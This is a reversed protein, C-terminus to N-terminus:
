PSTGHFRFVANRKRAGVDLVDGGGCGTGAVAPDITSGDTDLVDDVDGVTVVDPVEESQLTRDLVINQVGEVVAWFIELVKVASDGDHGVVEHDVVILDGDDVGADDIAGLGLTDDHSRQLGGNLVELIDVDLHFDCDGLVLVEDSLHRDGAVILALDLGVADQVPAADKIVEFLGHLFGTNLEVDALAVVLIEVVDNLEDLDEDDHGGLLEQVNDADLVLGEGIRALRLAELEVLLDCVPCVGIVLELADVLAPQRDGRVGQPEIVGPLFMLAEIAGPDLVDITAVVAVDLVDGIPDDEWDKRTQGLEHLARLATGVGPM